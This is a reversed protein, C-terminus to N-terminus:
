NGTSYTGRVFKALSIDQLPQFERRLPQEHKILPGNGEPTLNKRIATLYCHILRGTREVPYFEATNIGSLTQASWLKSLRDREQVLISRAQSHAKQRTRLSLDENQSREVFEILQDPMRTATLDIFDNAMSLSESITEYIADGLGRALRIEVESKANAMLAHVGSDLYKITGLMSVSSSLSVPLSTKFEDSTTREFTSPFTPTSYIRVRESTPERTAFRMFHRSGQIHEIVKTANGIFLDRDSAEGIKLEAAYYFHTFKKLSAAHKEDLTFRSLVRFDLQDLLGLVHEASVAGSAFGAINAARRLDSVQSYFLSPNHEQSAILALHMVKEFVKAEVEPIESLGSMVVRQGLSSFEGLVEGMDHLLISISLDRRLLDIEPSRRHTALLGARRFMDVVMIISHVTHVASHEGTSSEIHIDSKFRVSRALATLMYSCAILEHPELGLVVRDNLVELASRYDYDQHEHSGLLPLLERITSAYFHEDVCPLSLSGKSSIQIEPSVM